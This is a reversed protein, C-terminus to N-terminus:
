STFIEEVTQALEQDKVADLTAKEQKGGLVYRIKPQSGFVKKFAKEVIQLCKETELRGKHFEYYVKIIVTDNTLKYPQSSRLLAEVSHNYPRIIKLLTEWKTQIDEFTFGLSVAQAEKPKLAQKVSKTKTEVAKEATKAKVEEPKEKLEKPVIRVAASEEAKQTSNDPYCWETILLELPLTPILCSRLQSGAHIGLTIMKKIEELSLHKNLNTGIGHEALLMKKLEMLFTRLVDEWDVGHKEQDVVWSLATKSDKKALLEILKAANAQPFVLSFTEETIKKSAFALQELIKTSDRFSGDAKNIIKQLVGEDLELKEGTIVKQLARKLESVSAKQFQIHFTRSVVTEPLKEPETTALIFVVHAPPEELTKLLANFAERTLMHVEDIVFIKKRLRLPSSAVSERLVRVDDIGRNSAGDIEIVDIASGKTISVCVECQNCPEIGKKNECTIAKALIRASSTKGLGRPGSFLFAHPIEKSKLVQTLQLRVSDLDLEEITQPRYKLYFTAM